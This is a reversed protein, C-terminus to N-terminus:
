DLNPKWIRMFVLELAIVRGSVPFTPLSFALVLIRLM